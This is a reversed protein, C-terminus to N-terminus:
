ARLDLHEAPELQGSLQTSFGELDEVREFRARKAFDPDDTRDLVTWPVGYEARRYNFVLDARRGESGAYGLKLFADGQERDSNDRRGGNKLDPNIPEFDRPM